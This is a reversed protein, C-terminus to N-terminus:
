VNSGCIFTQQYAYLVCLYIPFPILFSPWLIFIPIRRDTKLYIIPSKQFEWERLFLFCKSIYDYPGWSKDPLLVWLPKITRREGQAYYHPPYSTQIYHPWENIQKHGSFIPCCHHRNRHHQGCYIDSVEPQDTRRRRELSRLFDLANDSQDHWICHWKFMINKDMGYSLVIAM